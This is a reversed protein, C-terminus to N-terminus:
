ASQTRKTQRRPKADLLNLTQEETLYTKPTAQLAKEEEPTAEDEPILREALKKYLHRLEDLEQRIQQLETATDM